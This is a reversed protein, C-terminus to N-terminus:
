GSGLREWIVSSWTLGCLLLSILVAASGMDKAHGSLKHHDTGIRDITYEVATNLLEVILVILVTGFLLSRQVADAGLWFALPLMVIAALMELRFAEESRWAARIGAVSFGTAAVLRELGRRTNM